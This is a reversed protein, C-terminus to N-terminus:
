RARAFAEIQAQTDWDVGTFRVLATGVGDRVNLDVVKADVIAIPLQVQLAGFTALPARSELEAGGAGLRAVRAAHVNPDLQKGIFLRV